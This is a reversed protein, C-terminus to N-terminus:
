ILVMGHPNEDLNEDSNKKTHELMMAALACIWIGLLCMRGLGSIWLGQAFWSTLLLIKPFYIFIKRM